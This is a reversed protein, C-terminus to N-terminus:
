SNDDVAQLARLRLDEGSESGNALPSPREQHRRILAVAQPSAGAEAALRAGWAPHQVAVVFPRRWGTGAAPEDGAASGWRELCGPCTAAVVVVLAREWPRLPCLCKGADHLLAATLLDRDQEGAAQLSRAVRLSHAQDSAPMRRFLVLQEKSLLSAALDLEEPHPSAGLARWFQRARYLLRPAQFREGSLRGGLLRKM